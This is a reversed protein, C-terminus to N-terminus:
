FVLFNKDLAMVENVGTLAQVAQVPRNRLHNRNSACAFSIEQCYRKGNESTTNFERDPRISVRYGGGAM